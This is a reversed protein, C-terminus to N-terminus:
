EAVAERAGETEEGEIDQNRASPAVARQEKLVM